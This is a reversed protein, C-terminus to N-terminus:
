DDDWQHDIVELTTFKTVDQKMYILQVTTPGPWDIQKIHSILGPLDLHNFAGAYIDAELMKQGGYWGCPLSPDDLSVFGKIGDVEFFRNIEHLKEDSLSDLTEISLLVNTVNSM